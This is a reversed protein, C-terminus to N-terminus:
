MPGEFRAAGGPPLRNEFNKIKSAVATNLSMCWRLWIKKARKSKKRNDFCIFILEFGKLMILLCQVVSNNRLELSKNCSYFSEICLQIPIGM